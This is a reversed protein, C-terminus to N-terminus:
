LWGPSGDSFYYIAVVFFLAAILQGVKSAQSLQAPRQDGAFVILAGGGCSGCAIGSVWGVWRKFCGFRNSHGCRLALWLFTGSLLENTHNM